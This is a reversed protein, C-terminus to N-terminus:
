QPPPNLASLVDDFEVDGDLYSLATPMAFIPVLGIALVDLRSVRDTPRPMVARVAVSDFEVVGSPVLALSEPDVSFLLGIPDRDEGHPLATLYEFAGGRRPLAVNIALEGEVAVQGPDLRIGFMLVNGDAIPYGVEAADILHPAVLGTDSADSFQLTADTLDLVLRGNELVHQEGGSLSTFRAGMPIEPLVFSQGGNNEGGVVDLWREVSAFRPNAGGPNLVVRHRGAPLAKDAPWGWGYGFAGNADTTTVFRSAPELEPLSVDVSALPQFARDLVFAHVLTPFERVEFNTALVQVGDVLISVDIDAGYTWPNTPSFSYIRNGPLNQTKGSVPSQERDVQVREVMSMNSLDTDVSPAEYVLGHVSERVEIAVRSPEIRRNFHLTLPQNTEVNQAGQTPSQKRISLPISDLDVAEFSEQVQALVTGELSEAWVSVTHQEGAAIPGLLVGHDGIGAGGSVAPEDDLQFWLQDSSGADRLRAEVAVETEGDALTFQDGPKPSLLELEVAHDLHVGMGATASLGASNWATVSLATDRGRDLKVTVDFTWRGAELAPELELPHGSFMAGVLNPEDVYGTVRLPNSTIAQFGEQPTPSTFVVVPPTDDREFLVTVGSEAGACSSALVAVEYSENSELTLEAHFSYVGGGDDLVQDPALGDVTLAALCDAHVTGSLVFTADHVVVHDDAVALEITPPPGLDDPNLSSVRDVSVAQNVSGFQSYVTVEIQNLGDALTVDPFVYEYAGNGQTPVAIRAGIRVVVDEIPLTTFVRGRVDVSSEITQQYNVNPEDITLLPMAPVTREIAFSVPTGQLGTGGIPVVEIANTGLELPLTLSFNGGADVNASFTLGLQDSTVTVDSIGGGHGHAAGAILLTDSVTSAAPTSALELTPLTSANAPKSWAGILLMFVAITCSFALLRHHIRRVM